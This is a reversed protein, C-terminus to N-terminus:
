SSSNLFQRLLQRRFTSTDHPVLPASAIEGDYEVVFRTWEDAPVEGDPWALLDEIPVALMVSNEKHDVAKKWSEILVSPDAVVETVHIWCTYAFPKEAGIALLRTTGAKPELGFEEKLGRHVTAFSSADEPEMQEEFSLSYRGPHFDQGQARLSIIVSRQYRDFIAEQFLVINHTSIGVPVETQRFRTIEERSRMHLDPAAQDIGRITFYDSIGLTVRLHDPTAAISRVTVKPDNWVNPGTREQTKNFAQALGQRMWEPAQAVLEPHGSVTKSDPSQFFEVQESSLGQPWAAIEITTGIERFPYEPRHGLDERTM